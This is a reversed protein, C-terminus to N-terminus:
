YEVEVERALYYDAAFGYLNTEVMADNALIGEIKNLEFARQYNIALTKSVPYNLTFTHATSTDVLNSVAGQAKVTVAKFPQNGTTQATCVPPTTATNFSECRVKTKLSDAQARTLLADLGPQDTVGSYQVTYLRGAHTLTFTDAATDLGSVYGHVSKRYGSAMKNDMGQAHLPSLKLTAECPTKTLDVTFQRLDADLAVHEHNGAVLNVAGTLDLACMGNTCGLANPQGADDRYSVFKCSLTQHNADVLTVNENLEIHLRNYSGAECSTTNVLDLLQDRGLQAADVTLPGPIITCLRGGGMHQLQVMNVTMLVSEYGALDDTLYVSVTSTNTPNTGDGSGSGCGPLLSSLLLSLGIVLSTSSAHM